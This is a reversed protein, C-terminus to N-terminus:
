FNFLNGTARTMECANTYTRTFDVKQRQATGRATVTVPDSYDACRTNTKGPLRDIRGGAAKLDRCAETQHPHAANKDGPCDLFIHGIEDQGQVTRAVSLELRGDASAPDAPAAATATGALGTAIVAGALITIIKQM